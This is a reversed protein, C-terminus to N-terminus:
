SCSAWVDGNCNTWVLTCNGGNQIVECYECDGAYVWCAGWACLESCTMSSSQQAFVHGSATIAGALMLGSLSRLVVQSPKM